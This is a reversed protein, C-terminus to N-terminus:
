LTRLNKLLTNKLPKVFVLLFRAFFFNIDCKLLFNHAAFLLTLKEVSKVFDVMKEINKCM